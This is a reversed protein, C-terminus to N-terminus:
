YNRILDRWAEWSRTLLRYEGFGTEDMFEFYRNINHYYWIEYPKSGSEFPHREVESPPGFIIYIMGMDTKWGERFVTFNDTAFQVRQYYEDMWENAETGPTPDHNRWFQVFKDLMEDPAAKKFVDMEKKAAIYKLQRIALEIDSVTAPLNGWRVFFRKNIEAKSRDTEVKLELAYLGQSLRAGPIQFYELTRQGDKSRRYSHRQIEKGKANKIRYFVNFNEDEVLRSYIEFYVFLDSRLDVIAEAIDPHFSKVGLSDVQVERVFALDSMMLNDKRFNRLQIQDKVKRTSKTELDTLGLSIKYKDVPLDFKLYSTSYNVRSNTLDYQEVEVTEEETRGDIQNGDRDFITASIEYRAQYRGEVLTFQLNEYAIKVYIQLRSLESDPSAVNVLDYYFNPTDILRGRDLEPQAAIDRLSGFFMMGALVFLLMNLKM